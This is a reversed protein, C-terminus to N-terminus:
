PQIKKYDPDFSKQDGWIKDLYNKDAIIVADLKLSDAVNSETVNAKLSVKTVAVFVENNPSDFEFCNFEVLDTETTISSQNVHIFGNTGFTKRIERLSTKGFKFESYLPIEGKPNQLWDNEMYVIKDDIATVSFDNGNKTQYKTMAEDSASIKLGIKKMVSKPANIKIGLMSIPHIASFGTCVIFIMLVIKKM